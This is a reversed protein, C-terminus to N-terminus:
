EAIRDVAEPVVIGTIALTQLGREGFQRHGVDLPRQAIQAGITHRDRHDHVFGLLQLLRQRRVIGGRDSVIRRLVRINELDVLNDFFPREMEPRLINLYNRYVGDKMSSFVIGSSIGSPPFRIRPCDWKMLVTSSM